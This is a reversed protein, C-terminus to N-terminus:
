LCHYEWLRCHKSLQKMRCRTLPRRPIWPRLLSKHKQFHYRLALDLLFINDSCGDTPRFARQREDLAVSKRLRLAFIKHLTRIIASSVTIPRFDGPEKANSKKPILM